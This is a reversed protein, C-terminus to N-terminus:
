CWHEQKLIDLLWKLEPLLMQELSLISLTSTGNDSAMTGGIALNGAPSHFRPDM